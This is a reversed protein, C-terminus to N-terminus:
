EAVRLGMGSRELAKRFRNSCRMRSVRYNPQIGVKMRSAPEVHRLQPLQASRQPTETIHTAALNV